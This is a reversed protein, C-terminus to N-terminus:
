KQKRVLEVKKIAQVPAAVFLYSQINLLVEYCKKYTKKQQSKQKLPILNKTIKLDQQNTFILAVNTPEENFEIVLTRNEKEYPKFDYRYLMRLQDFKKPYGQSPFKEETNIQLIKFLYSSSAFLYSLKEIFDQQQQGTEVEMELLEDIPNFIDREIQYIQNIEALKKELARGQLYECSKYRSNSDDQNYIFRHYFGTASKLTLLAINIFEAVETKQTFSNLRELRDIYESCDLNHIGVAIILQEIYNEVHNKLTFVIKWLKSTGILQLIPPAIEFKRNRNNGTVQGLKLIFPETEQNSEIEPLDWKLDIKYGDGNYSVSDKALNVVAFLTSGVKKIEKEGKIIFPYGQPSIVFLNKVLLQNEQWEFQNWLDYGSILDSQVPAFFGFNKEAICNWRFFEMPLRALAYLDQEYIIRDNEFKPVKFAM